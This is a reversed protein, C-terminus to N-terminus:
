NWVAPYFSTFVKKLKEGEALAPFKHSVIREGSGPWVYRIPCAVADASTEEGKKYLAELLHPDMYDDGDLFAVYKGAAHALGFNRADSLGGNEKALVKIKEPYRHRFDEIIMDSTDPSGDNVCLIEIGELSQNCLSSLCKELFPAVNYIPVIVSIKIENM